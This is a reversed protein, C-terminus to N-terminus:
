CYLYGYSYHLPYYGYGDDYDHGLDDHVGYDDDDDDHGLDDFGDYTEQQSAQPLEDGVPYNGFGRQYQHGHYHDSHHGYQGYSSFHSYSSICVISISALSVRIWFTNM